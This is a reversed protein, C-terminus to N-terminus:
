FISIKGRTLIYTVQQPDKEKAVVTESYLLHIKLKQQLSVLSNVPFKQMVKFRALFYVVAMIDNVSRDAPAM